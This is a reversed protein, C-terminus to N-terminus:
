NQKRELTLAINLEPKRPANIGTNTTDNPEIINRAKFRLQNIFKDFDKRM